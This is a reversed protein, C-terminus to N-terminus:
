YFSLEDLSIKSNKERGDYTIYLLSCGDANKGIMGSVTFDVICVMTYTGNGNDTFSVSSYAYRNNHVSNKTGDAVVKGHNATDVATILGDSSTQVKNDLIYFYGANNTDYTTCKFKLHNYKSTKEDFMARIYVTGSYSDGVDEGNIGAIIPLSNFSELGIGIPVTVGSPATSPHFTGKQYRYFESLEHKAGHIEYLVGGENAHVSDLNFLVGNENANVSELEYLVGGENSTIPM